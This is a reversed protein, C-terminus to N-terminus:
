LQVLDAIYESFGSYVFWYGNYRGSLNFMPGIRGKVICSAKELLNIKERISGLPCTRYETNLSILPVLVSLESCFINFQPMTIRDFAYFLEHPIRHELSLLAVCRMFHVLIIISCVTFITFHPGCIPPPVKLYCHLVM